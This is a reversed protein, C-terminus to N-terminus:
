HYDVYDLDYAEGNEFRFIIRWNGSVTLSWFGKLEGKLPHIKWGMFVAFDQPVTKAEDIVALMDGIREIWEAPLKSVDNKQWYLKLSKSKFSQIM